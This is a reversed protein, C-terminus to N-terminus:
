VPFFGLSFSLLAHVRMRIDLTGYFKIFWKSGRTQADFTEPSMGTLDLVGIAIDDGMEATADAAAHNSGVAQLADVV